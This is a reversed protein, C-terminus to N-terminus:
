RRAGLIGTPLDHHIPVNSFIKNVNKLGLDSKCFSCVLVEKGGKIAKYKARHSGCIDCLKHAEIFSLIELRCKISPRNVNIIKQKRYASYNANNNRLIRIITSIYREQYNFKLVHKNDVLVEM